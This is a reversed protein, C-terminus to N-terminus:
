IQTCGEDGENGERTVKELTIVQGASTYRKSYAVGRSRMFVSHQALLKGSTATTVGEAAAEEILDGVSGSWSKNANLAMFEVVKLVCDPM